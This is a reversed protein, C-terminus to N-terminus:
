FLVALVWRMGGFPHDKIKLRCKLAARWQLVRRKSERLGDSNAESRQRGARPRDYRHVEKFGQVIM